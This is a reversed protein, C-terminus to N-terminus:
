LGFSSYCDLGSIVDGLRVVESFFISLILIGNVIYFGGFFSLKSQYRSLLFKPGGAQTYVWVFGM